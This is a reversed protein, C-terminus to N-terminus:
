DEIFGIAFISEDEPILKKQIIKKTFSDSVEDIWRAITDATINSNINRKIRKMIIETTSGCKIRVDLLVNEFDEINPYMEALNHEKIFDLIDNVYGDLTTNHYELIMKKEKIKQKFDNFSSLDGMYLNEFDIQKHIEQIDQELLLEENFYDIENYSDQDNYVMCLNKVGNLLTYRKGNPIILDTIEEKKIEYLKIAKQLFILIPKSYSLSIELEEFNGKRLNERIKELIEYYIKKDRERREKLLKKETEFWIRYEVGIFRIIDKIRLELTEVIKLEIDISEAPRFNLVNIKKPNDLRTTRGIRQIIRVPNYPIDFNIVIDAGGINFGESLTDTSILIRLSNEPNNFEEIIAQKNKTSADVFKIENTDLLDKFFEKIAKLTDKYQTFILLKKDPNDTIAYGLRNIKQDNKFLIRSNEKLLPEIIEIQDNILATDRKLDDLIELHIDGKGDVIKEIVQNLKEKFNLEFNIEVDDEHDDGFEVKDLSEIDCDNIANIILQNRKRLRKLTLYYSTIDSEFRKYLIWKFMGGLRVGKDPDLIKLHANTLNQIFDVIGQIIDDYRSDLEYKIETVEPDPIDRIDVGTISKIEDINIESTKITAGTSKVFIEKEIEEQVNSFDIKEKESLEEYEKIKLLKILEELQRILEDFLLNQGERYFLKVLNSLDDFRTNIPTATLFLVKSDGNEDIIKKLNKSRYSDPNRFNHAEDVIILGFNKVYEQLNFEDPNKQLMGMGLLEVKDEIQFESLYRPWQEENDVLGSPAILLVKMGNHIAYKAVQSAVYSKGLGVSSTLFCGRYGKGNFNDLVRILDIYQFKLLPTDEIEEFLYDANLFKILIKFFERPNIYLFTDKIDDKFKSDEIAIIIAESVKLNEFDETGLDWLNDFWKEVANLDRKDDIITNLETNGILGSPTLNSSGVIAAKYREAFNETESDSLFLYGKSHLREPKEDGFYARIKLTQYEQVLQYFLKLAPKTQQNNELKNFNTKFANILQEKTPKNTEYGMLIKIEQINKISNIIEILGEIYFYGVACKFGSSEHAFAMLVEKMNLSQVRKNDIIKGNTWIENIDIHKEKPDESMEGGFDPNVHFYKRINNLSINFYVNRNM